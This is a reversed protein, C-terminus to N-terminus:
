SPLAGQDADVFPLVDILGALVRPCETPKKAIRAAGNDPKGLM